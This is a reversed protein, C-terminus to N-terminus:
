ATTLIRLMLAATIGVFLPKIWRAGHRLGYHSGVYAGAVMSVMMPFGIDYDITNQLAFYVLAAVNSAFNLVSGHAAAHLFDFRLIGM